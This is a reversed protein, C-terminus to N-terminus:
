RKGSVWRPFAETSRESSGGALYDHLTNFNEYWGTDPMTVFRVSVRDFLHSIKRHGHELLDRAVPVISKRSVAFLPEYLGEGTMPVVADCGNSDRLLHAIFDLNINPIDCATVFNLETRSAALCSLIGMLPGQGPTEDPVFRVDLFSYKKCDDCGVLVEAFYPRLQAVIHEVLPKGNIPLLGKDRGMRRSAGGALVVATVSESWAKEDPLSRCNEASCDM